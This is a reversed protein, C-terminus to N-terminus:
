DFDIKYLKYEAKSRDKTKDNQVGNAGAQVVAWM